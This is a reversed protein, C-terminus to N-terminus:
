FNGRLDKFFPIWDKVVGYTIIFVFVQVLGLGLILIQPTRKRSYSTLCRLHNFPSYDQLYEQTHHIINFVKCLLERLIILNLFCNIANTVM